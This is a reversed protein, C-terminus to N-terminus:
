NEHIDCFDLDPERSHLCLKVDMLVPELGRYIVREFTEDAIHQLYTEKRLLFSKRKFGQKLLSLNLYMYLGIAAAGLILFIVPVTKLHPWIRLAILAALILVLGIYNLHKKIIDM